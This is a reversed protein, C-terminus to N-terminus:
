MPRWGWTWTQIAMLSFSMLTAQGVSMADLLVEWRALGIFFAFVRYCECVCCDHDNHDGDYTPPAVPSMDNMMGKGGQQTSESKMGGKGIELVLILPLIYTCM